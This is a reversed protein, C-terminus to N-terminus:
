RCPARRGRVMRQRDAHDAGVGALAGVLHHGRGVEDAEDAAVVPPMVVMEPGHRLEARRHHLDVDLRSGRGCSGAAAATFPSAFTDSCRHEFQVAVLGRRCAHPRARGPAVDERPTAPLARGASRSRRPASGDPAAPWRGSGAAGPRRSRRPPCRGRRRRSPRCTRRAGGVLAVDAAGAVQAPRKRAPSPAFAARGSRGTTTNVPSAPKHYWMPSISVATRQFSLVIVTTFLLLPPLWVCARSRGPTRRSWVSCARSSHVKRLIFKALIASSM